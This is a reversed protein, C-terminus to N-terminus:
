DVALVPVLADAQLPHFELDDMEPVAVSERFFIQEYVVLGVWIRGVGEKESLHFVHGAEGSGDADEAGPVAIAILVDHGPLNLVDNALPTRAIERLQEVGAIRPFHSLDFRFRKARLKFAALFKPRRRTLTASFRNPPRPLLKPSLRM